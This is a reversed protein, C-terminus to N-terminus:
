IIIEDIKIFFIQAVKLSCNRFTASIEQLKRIDLLFETCLSHCGGLFSTLMALSIIVLLFIYFLFTERSKKPGGPM